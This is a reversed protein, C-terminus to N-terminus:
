LLNSNRDSRPQQVVLPAALGGAALLRGALWGAAMWWGALWCGALIGLAIEVPLLRGFFDNTKNPFAMHKRSSVFIPIGLM